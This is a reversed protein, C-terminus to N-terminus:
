QQGATETPVPHGEASLNGITQGSVKKLFLLADIAATDDNPIHRELIAVAECVTM